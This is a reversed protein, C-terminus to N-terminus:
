ALINLNRNCARKNRKICEKTFIEFAEKYNSCKIQKSAKPYRRIHVIYEKEDILLLAVNNKRHVVTIRVKKAKKLADLNIIFM